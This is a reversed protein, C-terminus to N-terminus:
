TFSEEASDMWDYDFPNQGDFSAQGETQGSKAKNQKRPVPALRLANSGGRQSSPLPIRQLSGSEDFPNIGKPYTGQREFHGATDPQSVFVFASNLSSGSESSQAFADVTESPAEFPNIEKPYQRDPNSSSPESPFPNSNPRSHSHNESTDYLVSPVSSSPPYSTFPSDSQTVTQSSGFPNMDTPYSPERAHQVVLANPQSTCLEHHSEEFKFPNTSALSESFRGSECTASRERSGKSLEEVRLDTKPSSLSQPLNSQGPQGFQPSWEEYVKSGEISSMARSGRCFASVPRASGVSTERRPPRQGVTFHRGSGKPVLRASDNHSIAFVDNQTCFSTQDFPSHHSSASSNRDDKESGSLGSVVSMDLNTSNPSNIVVFEGTSIRSSIPSLPTPPSIGLSPFKLALRRKVSSSLDGLYSSTRSSNTGQSSLDENGTDSVSDDPNEFVVSETDSTEKTGSSSLFKSFEYLTQFFSFLCFM